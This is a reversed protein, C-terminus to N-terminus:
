STGVSMPRPRGSSSRARVPFCVEVTLLLLAIALPWQYMETYTEFQEESMPTTELQRLATPVDTLASSTAGIRFYAGDEALTKLTTEDFRTRVAQGEATRKIGVQRGDEYIPIQAGQRTGVGATFLTVNNERAQRKVTELDGVHNEGDSILLLAQARREDPPRASDSPPRSTDFADMAADFAAQINTGPAPIQTPMAVELFLRLADYDTTLPAQLFGDGAFLVLGVRSGSLEDALGRVEEKARELRSPAVDQARMSASVDLAVVLDVGRREVTRVETGFRPGMLAVVLVSLGTIALGAKVTHRWPRVTGALQQVLAADGFQDRAAERRRAARWLAYVGGFVAVGAWVYMPHLWDM